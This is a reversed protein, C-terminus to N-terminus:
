AVRTLLGESSAGRGTCLAGLPKTIKNLMNRELAALGRAVKAAGEELDVANQESGHAEKAYGQTASHPQVGAALQLEEAFAQAGIQCAIM